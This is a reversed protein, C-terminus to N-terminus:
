GQSLGDMGAQDGYRLPLWVTPCTLFDVLGVAAGNVIQFTRVDLALILNETM